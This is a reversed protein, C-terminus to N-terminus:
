ITPLTLHTYSVAFAHGHPLWEIADCAQKDELNIQQLFSMRNDTPSYEVEFLKMVDVGILALVDGENSFGLETMWYGRMINRYELLRCDRYVGEADYFTALDRSAGIALVRGGPAWTMPLLGCDPSVSAIRMDRCCVQTFTDIIYVHRAAFEGAIAALM